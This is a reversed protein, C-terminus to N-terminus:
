GDEHCCFHRDMALKNADAMEISFRKMEEAPMPSYARALATNERIHELKPMGVVAVSVPLSLSYRLLPEITSKGAGDGLLGEQATVKMAIVGLNKRQAVPLAIREFSNDPVPPLNKGETSRGQLAANLAMQTCDFDHRELAKALTEPFTHSTVGIFRCAKQERLELMLKLVGKEAAELDDDGWLNHIHILDVQDTNLRKFSGETWRAAEDYDRVRIKTALFVEKRRTKMVEGVWTESKGAGYNQATDLYTIGSDIALNIAEVGKDQDEYALLRSGCGLALISPTAGTRGLVRTPLPAAKDGAGAEPAKPAAPDSSCAATTAAAAGIFTRRTLESSM